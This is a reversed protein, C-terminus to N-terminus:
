WDTVEFLAYPRNRNESLYSRDPLLGLKTGFYKDFVLRFTNVPTISPSLQSYDGDPFYIANLIGMKRDIDEKPASTWDYHDEDFWYDPPWPGEDAQIIIVPPRPSNDLIYNVTELISMNAYQVQEVYRESLTMTMTEQPRLFSGDAKFVHPPHTIVMHAMVFMPSMQGVAERLRALKYHTREWKEFDLDRFQGFATIYQLVKEFDSLTAHLNINVDAEPNMRTPEWTTGMHIYHYRQSKFFHAVHSDRMLVHLPTEAALGELREYPIIYSMNLIAAMSLPTCLYNARSDAAVYFGLRNLEDLFSQNDFGYFKNLVSRSGYRDYVFYYIDPPEDPSSVSTLGLQVDDWAVLSQPDIRARTLENAGITWSALLVLVLTFINLVMTLRDFNAHSRIVVRAFVVFYASYILLLLSRSVSLDLVDRLGLHVAEFTFVLFFFMSTILAARNPHGTLRWIILLMLGAGVLLVLVPRVLGSLYIDGANATYLLLAPYAALLFPHLLLPRKV